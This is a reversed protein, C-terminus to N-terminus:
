SLASIGDFVSATILSCVGGGGGGGRRNVTISNIFSLIPNEKNGRKGEKGRKGRKRRKGRKGRKGSFWAIVPYTGDSSLLRNKTHIFWTFATLVPVICLNSFNNWCVDSQDIRTEDKMTAFSWNCLYYCHDRVLVIRFIMNHEHVM